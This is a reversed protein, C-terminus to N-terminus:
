KSGLVLVKGWRLSQYERGWFFLTPIGFFFYFNTLLDKIEKQCLELHKSNMQSPCAKTPINREDLSDIYPLSVIHQKRQWFASPTDSCCEKELTQLSQSLKKQFEPKDNSRRKKSNPSRRKPTASILKKHSIQAEILNIKEISPVEFIWLINRSQWHSHYNWSFNSPFTSIKNFIPKWSYYWQEIRKSSPFQNKHM